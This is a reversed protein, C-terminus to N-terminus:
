RSLALSVNDSSSIVSAWLYPLLVVNFSINCSVGFQVTNISHGKERQGVGSFWHCQFQDNASYGVLCLEKCCTECCVTTSLELESKKLKQYKVYINLVTLNTTWSKNQTGPSPYLGM